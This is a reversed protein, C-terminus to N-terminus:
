QLFDDLSGESTNSPISIDKSKCSKNSCFTQVEESYNNLTNHYLVGDCDREPCKELYYDDLVEIVDDIYFDCHKNNKKVKKSNAQKKSIKKYNSCVILNKENIRYFYLKGDCDPNPCDIESKNKLKKYDWFNNLISKPNTNFPNYSPNRHHNKKNVGESDRKPLDKFFESQNNFEYCLYVKNKTRTLAVYFLRREEMDRRNRRKKDGDNFSVFRLLSEEKHTNPIAGENADLIIVNDAELGKSEHMTYFKIDLNFLDSAHIEKFRKEINKRHNRYRSLVLVSSKPQTESIEKLIEYVTKDHDLKDDKDNKVFYQRFELPKDLQKESFLDPKKILRDEKEMFSKEYSIFKRSIDVLEQSYRYTQKLHKEQIKKDKFCRKFHSFYKVECGNFGYIAQWDDGVVILKANSKELLKKLFKFRIESIDQYEDVLIYEYPIKIEDIIDTAEIIMDAFDIKNNIELHKQYHLYYKSIVSMFFTERGKRVRFKDFDDYSFNHQKFLKIFDLFYDILNEFHDLFTNKKLYRRVDEFTLYKPKFEVNRSNLEEELLRLYNGKNKLSDIIIVDEGIENQIRSKLDKQKNYRHEELDTLNYPHESDGYRQDDIYIEYDPLYFDFQVKKNEYEYEYLYKFDINNYFLFDAIRLDDYSKVKTKNFSNFDYDYNGKNKILIDKDWDKDRLFGPNFIHPFYIKFLEFTKFSKKKFEEHIQTIIFNRFLNRLQENNEEDFLYVRRGNEKILDLGLKHFTSVKVQNEFSFDTNSNVKHRLEDACKHSFSLCLIKSPSVCKVEILYKVKAVLTTTKGTGAGAIIQLVESDCLVADQQAKNLDIGNEKLNNFFDEDVKNLSMMDGLM